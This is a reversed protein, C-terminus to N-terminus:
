GGEPPKKKAKFFHGAGAGACIFERFKKDM